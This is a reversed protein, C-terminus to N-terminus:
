TDPGKREELAKIARDVADSVKPDGGGARGSAIRLIDTDQNPVGISGLREAAESVMPGSGHQVIYRYAEISDPEKNRLRRFALDSPHRGSWEVIKEAYYAETRANLKHTMLSNGHLAAFVQIIAIILVGKRVRAISPEKLIQVLTQCIGLVPVLVLPLMTIPGVYVLGIVHTVFVVVSAIPASPQFIFQQRTITSLFSVSLFWSVSWVCWFHIPPLIYDFAQFMCGGCAWVTSPSVMWILLSIVVVWKM